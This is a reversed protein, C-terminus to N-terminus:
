RPAECVDVRAADVLDALRLPNIRLATHTGGAGTVVVDFARRPHAISSSSRRAWEGYGVPPM